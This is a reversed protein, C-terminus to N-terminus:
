REFEAPADRTLKIGVLTDGRNQVAYALARGMTLLEGMAQKEGPFRGEHRERVTKVGQHSDPVACVVAVFAGADERIWGYITYRAM